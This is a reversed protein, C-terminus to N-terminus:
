DFFAKVFRVVDADVRLADPSGADGPIVLGDYARAEAERGVTDVPFAAGPNLRRM